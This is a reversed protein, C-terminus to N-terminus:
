ESESPIAIVRLTLSAHNPHAWETSVADEALRVWLLRMLRLGATYTNTGTVVAGNGATVGAGSFNYGRLPAGDPATATNATVIFQAIYWPSAGVSGRYAVFHKAWTGLPYIDTAYGWERIAFDAVPNGSVFNDPYFDLQFTPCWFGEKRGARDEAFLELARAEARSLGVYKLAFSERGVTEHTASITLGSPISRTDNTWDWEHARDGSANPAYPIVPLSRYSTPLAPLLPM